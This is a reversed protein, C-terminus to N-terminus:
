GIRRVGRREWWALGVVALIAALSWDPTQPLREVISRPPPLRIGDLAQPSSGSLAVLAAVEAPTPAPPEIRAQLNASQPATTAPRQVAVVWQALRAPFAPEARLLAAAEGALDAAFAGVRGLGVNGYALLPQGADGVVLLVHASARAAAPVAALLDPWQAPVPLLLPSTAVARISRRSDAVPAPTPPKPEPEPEPEPVRPEPPVEENAPGDGGSPKRGVKDLARVVEASVLQPVARADRVPLFSGGGERAIREAMGQFTALTRDDVISIMSLTLGEKKMANARQRLVLEQDWVEGDTLVVVHRVAAKSQGLMTRALTLGNDLFTRENFHSLKAIGAEIRAFQAADTLPLEVRAQDDDGFTILGVEDGEGLARATERASTKAYSMKTQGGLVRMGMSGSRDVVLAIAIAHKDVEVPAGPQVVPDDNRVGEPDPPTRNPVPKMADPLSPAGEGGLGDGAGVQPLVRVPLTDRLPDGDRQLGAGCVFLGVGDDVARQLRGQEEVPLEMGLVVADIGEWSSPLAGAEVASIGQARLASALSRSPDLVLVSPAALVEFEGTAIVSRGTAEIAVDVRVVGHTLPLAAVEIRAGDGVEGRMAASWGDGAITVEAPLRAALGDIRLSAVLPRQVRPTASFAVVLGDPSFPLPTTTAASAAVLPADPAFGVRFPATWVVMADESRPGARLAARAVSSLFDPGAEIVEVSAPPDTTAQLTTLRQQLETTAAGTTVVCLQAPQQVIRAIPPAIAAAAVVLMALVNAARASAAGTRVLLSLACGVLLAFALWALM